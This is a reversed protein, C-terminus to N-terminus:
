LLKCFDRPQELGVVVTVLLTYCHKSSQFYFSKIRTHDNSLKSKETLILIIKQIKLRFIIQKQPEYLSRYFM